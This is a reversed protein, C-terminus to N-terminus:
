RGKKEKEREEVRRDRKKKREREEREGEREGGRGGRGEKCSYALTIPNPVNDNFVGKKYPFAQVTM